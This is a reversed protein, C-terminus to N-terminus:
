CRQVSNYFSIGFDEINKANIKEETLTKFCYRFIENKIFYQM